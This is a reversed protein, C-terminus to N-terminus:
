LHGGEAGVVFLLSATLQERHQWRPGRRDGWRKVGISMVATRTLAWRFSPSSAYCTFMGTLHLGRFSALSANGASEGTLHPGGCHLTSGRCMSESSIPLGVFHVFKGAIGHM